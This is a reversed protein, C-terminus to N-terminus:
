SRDKLEQHIIITQQNCCELGEDLHWIQRATPLYGYMIRKKECKVCFTTTEGYGIMM